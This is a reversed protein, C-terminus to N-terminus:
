LEACLVTTMWTTTVSPFKGWLFTPGAIIEIILMYTSFGGPLTAM